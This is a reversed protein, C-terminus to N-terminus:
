KDLLYVMYISPYCRYIQDYLNYEKSIIYPVLVM